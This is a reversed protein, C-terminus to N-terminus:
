KKLEFCYDPQQASYDIEFDVKRNYYLKKKKFKLLEYIREKPVKDACCMQWHQPLEDEYFWVRFVYKGGYCIADYLDRSFYTYTNFGEKLIKNATKRNNTGHYYISKSRM